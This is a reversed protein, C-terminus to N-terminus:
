RLFLQLLEEGSLERPNALSFLQLRSSLASHMIIVRLGRGGGGAAALGPGDPQWYTPGRADGLRSRRGGQLRAARGYCWRRQERGQTAVRPPCRPSAPTQSAAWCPPRRANAGRTARAGRPWDRLRALGPSRTRPLSAALRAAGLERSCRLWRREGGDRRSQALVAFGLSSPPQPRMWCGTVVACRQLSRLGSM